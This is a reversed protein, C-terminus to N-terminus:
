NKKEKEILKDTLEIIKDVAECKEEKGKAMVYHGYLSWTLSCRADEITVPCEYCGIHVQCLACNSAGSDKGTKDRIGMWKERVLILPSEGAKLRKLM